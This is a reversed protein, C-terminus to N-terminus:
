YISTMIGKKAKKGGYEMKERVNNGV